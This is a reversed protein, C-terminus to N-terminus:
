RTRGLVGSAFSLLCAAAALATVDNMDRTPDMEVLDMVRVKPHLGCAHAARRLELPTLGGPRSGPTAPAFARDMVDLDLDVYIADAKLNLADLARVVLIEMGEDVVQEATVVAIGADRAVALYEPSNAFSQIGIQVINEGPLGERLLASVPNGNRLGENLDRVDLHADLTLLASRKLNMLMGMCAPLTISNDGGLLVLAEAGDLAGHVAAVIQWLADEVSLESVPLDDLDEARLNRIDSGHQIDATSFRELASRIARPALDCRAPTISGLRLPVGLVRLVAQAGPNSEGALWANARPWRRDQHLKTETM